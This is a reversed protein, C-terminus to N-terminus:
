PFQTCLYPPKRRDVEALHLEIGPMMDGQAVVLRVFGHGGEQVTRWGTTLHETIALRDPLNTPARQGVCESLSQCLSRNAIAAEESSVDVLDPDANEGLQGLIRQRQRETELGLEARSIDEGNVSAAAPDNSVFATFAGFGFLTLVVVIVGVLIKAALGQSKDRMKQLM